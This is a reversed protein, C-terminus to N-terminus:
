DKILEKVVKEIEVKKVLGLKYAIYLLIVRQIEFTTQEKEGAQLNQFDKM